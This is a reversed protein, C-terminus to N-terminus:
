CPDILRAYSAGCGIPFNRGSLRKAVETHEFTAVDLAYNPTSALRRYQQAARQLLEGGHSGKPVFDAPPRNYITLIEVGKRHLEAAELDVDHIRVTADGCNGIPHAISHGPSDGLVLALKRADKSWPLRNCTALADALADVFDGGPSPEIAALLSEAAERQYPRFALPRSSPEVMRQENGLAPVQLLYKPELEDATVGEITHDGFAIVTFMRSDIECGLTSLLAILERCLARWPQDDNLLYGSKSWARTTADIILAVEWQTGASAPPSPQSDFWGDDALVAEKPRTRPVRIPPLPEAEGPLILVPKNDSEVIWNGNDDPTLEVRMPRGQEAPIECRFTRARDDTVAFHVSDAGPLCELAFTYGSNGGRSPLRRELLDGDENLVQIQMDTGLDTEDNM